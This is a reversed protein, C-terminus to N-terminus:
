LLDDAAAIAAAALARRHQAGSDLGYQAATGRAHSHQQQSWLPNIQADLDIINGDADLRYHGFNLSASVADDAATGDVSPGAQDTEVRHTEEDDADAAARAPVVHAVPPADFVDSAAAAAAAAGVGFPQM